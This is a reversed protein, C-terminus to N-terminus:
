QRANEDHADVDSDLESPTLPIDLRPQCGYVDLDCNPEFPFRGDRDPWFLQVAQLEGLRGIHRCFGMAYGLYHEHHSVHVQRVGISNDKLVNDYKGAEEYRSGARLNKVVVSLIAHAQRPELGFIIAEPHAFTGMLGVTYVFPPAIDSISIAHWGYREVNEAIVQEPSPM